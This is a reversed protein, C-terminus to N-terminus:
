GVIGWLRLRGQSAKRVIRDNIALGDCKILMPTRREITQLIERSESGGNGKKRKIDHHPLALIQLCPREM